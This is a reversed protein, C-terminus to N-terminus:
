RSGVGVGLIARLVVVGTGARRIDSPSVTTAARAAFTM